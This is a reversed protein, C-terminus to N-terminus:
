KRKSSRIKKNRTKKVGTTPLRLISITKDASLVPNKFFHWIGTNKKDDDLRTKCFYCPSEPAILHMDESVHNMFHKLFVQGNELKTLDPTANSIETLKTRLLRKQRQSLEGWISALLLQYKTVEETLMMLAVEDGMVQEFFHDRQIDLRTILDITDTM